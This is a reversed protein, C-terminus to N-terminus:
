RHAKGVKKKKEKCKATTEMRGQIGLHADVDEAGGLIGTTGLHAAGLGTAQIGFALWPGM